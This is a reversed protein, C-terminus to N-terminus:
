AHKFPKLEGTVYVQMNLLIIKVRYVNFLPTKVPYLSLTHIYDTHMHSHTYRCLASFWRILGNSIILYGSLVGGIKNLSKRWLAFFALLGGTNDRFRGLSKAKSKRWSQWSTVVPVQM